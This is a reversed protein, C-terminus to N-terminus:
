VCVCVCVCVSWGSSMTEPSLYLIHVKGAVINEKTRQLQLETMSSNLSAGKLQRPLRKIQAERILVFFLFEQRSDDSETQGEIDRDTDRSKIDKRITWLSFRPCAEREVGGERGKERERDGGRRVQDDMLSVLPSVVLTMVAESQCMVFTPLQYCLSKGSGTSSVLLTSENRLVREIVDRQGPRFETFGYLQMCLRSTPSSSFSLFLFFFFFLPPSASFRFLSRCLSV